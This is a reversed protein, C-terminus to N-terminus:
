CAKVTLLAQFVILLYVSSFQSLKTMLGVGTPTNTTPLCEPSPPFNELVANVSCIQCSWRTNSLQVLESPQLGFKRQTNVFKRHNVLSVGFFSHISELMAIFEAAESVARRPHCLVLNSEHGHGHVHIAEPHRERFRARVGGVAGSMIAAGDYTQALCKLQDIGKEGLQYEIAATISTADFQTVETLALFREKM